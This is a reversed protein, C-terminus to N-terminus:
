MLFDLGTEQPLVVSLRNMDEYQMNVVGYDQSHANGYNIFEAQYANNDIGYNTAYNNSMNMWQSAPLALELAANSFSGNMKDIHVDDLLVGDNEDDSENAYYKGTNYQALEKEDAFYKQLIEQDIEDDSASSEDDDDSSSIDSHLRSRIKMFKQYGDFDLQGILFIFYFKNFLM